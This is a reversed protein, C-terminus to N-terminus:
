KSKTEDVVLFRSFGQSYVRLLIKKGKLNKTAAVADESNRIRQRNIEQIVDGQRLGADYAPTSEEIESVLAGQVSAPIGLQRRVGADLDSVTVGDL